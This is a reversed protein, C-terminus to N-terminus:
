FAFQLSACGDQISLINYSVAFTYLKLMPVNDILELLLEVSDFRSFNATGSPQNVEPASSFSMCYINRNGSFSHYKETTRMRWYSEPLKAFRDTGDIALGCRILFEGGQFAADRRGYNFWDNNAESEADLLVFVIEKVNLRFDLQVRTTTTGPSIYDVQTQVQEVLYFTEKVEDSPNVGPLIGYMPFNAKDVNTLHVYEAILSVNLPSMQRPPNPGDYIVVQDFKRFKVRLRVSQRYLSLLPLSAAMKKSFSYPLPVILTTIALANQKLVNITDFRNVEKDRSERSGAPTSLYSFIELDLSTRTDIAIDGVILEVTEIIAFATSNTWGVYTSGTPIQLPPLVIVLSLDHLLDGQSPIDINMYKGFDPKERSQILLPDVAHNPLRQYGYNFLTAEPKISLYYDLPSLANLQQVSAQSTSASM